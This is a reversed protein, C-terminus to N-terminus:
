DTRVVKLKLFVDLSAPRRRWKERVYCFIMELEGGRWGHCGCVFDNLTERMQGDWWDHTLWAKVGELSEFEEEAGVSCGDDAM